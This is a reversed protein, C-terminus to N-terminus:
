NEFEGNPKVKEPKLGKLTKLTLTENEIMMKSWVENDGISGQIETEIAIKLAEAKSLILPIMSPKGNFYHNKLILSKGEPSVESYKGDMILEVDKASEIPFSFVIIIFGSSEFHSIYREHNTAELLFADFQLDRHDNVVISLKYDFHADLDNFIYSNVFRTCTKMSHMTRFEYEFLSKPIDLLPFLFTSSKTFKLVRSM